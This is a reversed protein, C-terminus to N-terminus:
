YKTRRITEYTDTYGIKAYLATGGIRLAKISLISFIDGRSLDQLIM